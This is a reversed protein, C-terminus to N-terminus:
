GDEDDSDEDEDSGDGQRFLRESTSRMFDALDLGQESALSNQLLRMRDLQARFFPSEDGTADIESRMRRMAEEAEAGEGQISRPDFNPFRILFLEYLALLERANSEGTRGPLHNSVSYNTDTPALPDSDSRAADTYRRPLM